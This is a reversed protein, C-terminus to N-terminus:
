SAIHCQWCKKYSAIFLTPMISVAAHMCAHAYSCASLTFPDAILMCGLMYSIIAIICAHM